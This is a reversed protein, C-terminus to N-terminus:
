GRKVRETNWFKHWKSHIRYKLEDMASRFVTRTPLTEYSVFEIHRERAFSIDFGVKYEEAFSGPEVNDRFYIVIYKGRNPLVVQTLLNLWADERLAQRTREALNSPVRHDVMVRASYSTDDM